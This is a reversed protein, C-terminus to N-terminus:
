QYYRRKCAGEKVEYGSNCLNCYNPEDCSICLDVTCAASLFTHPLIINNNSSSFNHRINTSKVMQCVKQRNKYLNQDNQCNQAM